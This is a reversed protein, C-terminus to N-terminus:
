GVKDLNKLAKSVIDSELLHTLLTKKENKVKFDDLHENFVKSYNAVQEISKFFITADKFEQHTCTTSPIFEEVITQDDEYFNKPGFSYKHIFM